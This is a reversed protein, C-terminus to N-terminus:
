IWNFVNNRIFITRQFKYFLGFFFNYLFGYLWFFYCYIFTRFNLSFLNIVIMIFIIIIYAVVVTNMNSNIKFTYWICACKLGCLTISTKIQTIIHWGEAVISFVRYLRIHIYLGILSVRKYFTECKFLPLVCEDWLTLCYSSRM